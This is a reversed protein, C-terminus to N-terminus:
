GKAPQVLEVLVQRGGKIAYIGVPRYAGVAMVDAAARALEAQLIEARMPAKVALARLCRHHRAATRHAFHDRDCRQTRRNRCWVPGTRVTQKLASARNAREPPSSLRAWNHSIAM